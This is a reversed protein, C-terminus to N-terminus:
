QVSKLQWFFRAYLCSASFHDPWWSRLTPPKSELHRNNFLQLKNEPYFSGSTISVHPRLAVWAAGLFVALQLWHCYIVSAFNRACKQLIRIQAQSV